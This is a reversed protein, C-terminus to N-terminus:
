PVDHQDGIPRATAGTLVTSITGGQHFLLGMLWTFFKATKPGTVMKEGAWEAFRIAGGTRTWLGILGGLAWLYVLLILAFDETGIAPLLFADIINVQGAIIGGAAIGIFLASVVEQLWFALVIAILPPLVSWFGYHGNTKPIDGAVYVAAGLGGLVLAAVLWRRWWPTGGDPDEDSEPAVSGSEQVDTISADPEAADPM